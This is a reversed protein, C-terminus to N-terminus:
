FPPWFGSGESARGSKRQAIIQDFAEELEQGRLTFGIHPAKCLGPISKRLEDFGINTHGRLSVEVAIKSLEFSAVDAAQLAPEAEMWQMDYPPRPYRSYGKSLRFLYRDSEHAWCRDFWNELNNGEGDGKAFIYHIPNRKYRIPHQNCWWAIAKMINAVNFIYYSQCEPDDKLKEPLKADFEAKYVASTFATMKYHGDGAKANSIRHLRDQFLTFDDLKWTRYADFKKHSPLPEDKLIKNRAFEFDKMHFFELGKEDLAKAWKRQFRDWDPKYALYCTVGHLLPRDPRDKVTPDETADFYTTLLAIIGRQPNNFPDGCLHQWADYDGLFVSV